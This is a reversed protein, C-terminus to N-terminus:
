MGINAYKIEEKVPHTNHFIFSDSPVTQFGPQKQQVHIFSVLKLSLDMCEGRTDM